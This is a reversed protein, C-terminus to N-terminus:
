PIPRIICEGDKKRRRKQINIAESIVKISAAVRYPLLTALADFLEIRKM